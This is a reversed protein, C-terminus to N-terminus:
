WSDRRTQILISKLRAWQLTDFHRGHSIIVINRISLPRLILINYFCYLLIGVLIFM